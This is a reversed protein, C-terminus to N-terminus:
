CASSGREALPPPGTSAGDFPASLAQDGIGPDHVAVSVTFRGSVRRSGFEWERGTGPSGDPRLLRVRGGRTGFGFETFRLRLGQGIAKSYAEKLTWLRVLAGNRRDEAVRRLVALEYPTCMRRETGLGLMRRDAREVDVGIRNYRTLGVVLLDETHSLSVDLRDIGRLYPRGGPRYALDLEEPAAGLVAGAASKLLLRSAVFRRRAQPRTMRRLREHDRGLAAALRRDDLNAPAWDDVAAYVVSAGTRRVERRMPQWAADPAGPPGGRPRVLVPAPTRTLHASHPMAKEEDDTSRTAYLDHGRADDFRQLPEALLPEEGSGTM